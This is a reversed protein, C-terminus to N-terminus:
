KNDKNLTKKLWEDFENEKRKNEAMIKAIQQNQSILGQEGVM